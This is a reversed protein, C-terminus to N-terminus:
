LLEEPKAVQCIDLLEQFHADRSVLTAGNDRALIAHLADGFAVRRSSCLRKAEKVHEDSVSIRFLINNAICFIDEIHERNYDTLLERIVMESYLIIDDAKKCQVILQFAWEGLPRFKDHRDEYYDRWINTDLYYKAMSRDLPMDKMFVARTKGSIDRIPDSIEHEMFVLSFYCSGAHVAV